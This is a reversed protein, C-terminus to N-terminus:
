GRPRGALAYARDSLRVARLCDHVTVPPAAGNRWHDLADRLATLALPEAPSAPATEEGGATILRM